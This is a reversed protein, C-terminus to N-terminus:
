IPDLDSGEELAAITSVLVREVITDTPDVGLVKFISGASNTGVDVGHLGGAVELDFPLYQHTARVFAAGTNAASFVTGPGFLAVPCDIGSALHDVANGLAVGLYNTGSDVAEEISGLGVDLKVVQGRLFTEAALVPFHQVRPPGGHDTQVVRFDPVPM